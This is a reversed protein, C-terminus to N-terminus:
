MHVEIPLGKLGSRYYGWICQTVEYYDFIEEEVLRDLILKRKDYEDYIEATDAYGANKAIKQELIFSNRNAKFVHVDDVPNWNFATRAMIGDVERNYGEIEDLTLIRRLKKGKQEIAMQIIVIDLNDMFTKPVNIPDGTFRQIVKTVTGAHFTSICPHGTQMAQFVISGEPGRVEGPIIYDPRSRLASKLLDFLDVRGEEPGTTKTLLRQWVDHPVQLEPTSEATFIKRNQQIFPLIANMTTTKGCATEGCIFLSRGYQLCIWLYAAVGSGVTGWKILQTISIPTETFRRITMSPGKVSIADSYIINGRSGDPLTGDAIPHGESVPTGMKESIDRAIDGADKADIEINTKIMDYIKHILHIKDGPIFHIDELYPDRMFCELPGAGIITKLVNYEISKKEDSTVKVKELRKQKKGKGKQKDISLNAAKEDVITIEDILQKLIDRLDSDLIVSPKTPVKRVIIKLIEDLKEKEADSLQPEIVHYEIEEMEQTRYLHIFVSGKTPYLVNPFKENKLSQPLASYFEPLNMKREIADLYNRLERNNKILNDVEEQKMKTM